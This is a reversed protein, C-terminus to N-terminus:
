GCPTQLVQHQLPPMSVRQQNMKVQVSSPAFEMGQMGPSPKKAAKPVDTQTATDTLKARKQAVPDIGLDLERAKGCFAPAMKQETTEM